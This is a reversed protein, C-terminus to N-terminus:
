SYEAASHAAQASAAAARIEAHNFYQGPTTGLMQRFMAIFASTDRYGVDLAVTTVPQGHALAELAALLRLQRRWEAFGLKTEKTFLRALTRASGGVREAFQELTDDCAPNDHLATTIARLRRDKPQPLHLPTQPLTAIQDILASMLRMEPGNRAYRWGFKACELMLERVLPTITITCCHAPLANVHKADVYLTCLAFGRQSLGRHMVNPPIWVGRQPLSIWLGTETETRLVGDSVYVLQGKRHKHPPGDYRAYRDFLAFASCKIQDPDIAPADSLRERSTRKAM